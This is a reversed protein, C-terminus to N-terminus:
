ATWRGACSEYKWATVNLVRAGHDGTLALLEAAHKKFLIKFESDTQM